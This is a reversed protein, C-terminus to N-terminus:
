VAKSKAWIEDFRAQFAAATEAHNKITIRNESHKTSSSDSFNASGFFVDDGVVGFKEHMTRASQVRVDVDLGAAALAKLATVSGGNYDDNLVVRVRVGRRAAVELARSEPSGPSMGYMAVCLTQGPKARAFLDSAGVVVSAPVRSVQGTADMAAVTRSGAAGYGTNGVTASYPRGNFFVDVDIATLKERVRGLTAPSIGPVSLLDQLSEYDGRAEREAVIAQAQKPTFGAADLEDVSAANISVLGSGFFLAPGAQQLLAAAAPVREALEDLSAFRGYRKREALVAKAVQAGLVTALRSADTAAYSNVDISWGDSPVQYKPLSDDKRNTRMKPPQSNAVLMQNWLTGKFNAFNNPSLAADDNNWYGSFEDGFQAIARRSSADTNRFTVLDEYNKTDATGSWNFSGTVLADPRGDIFTCFGKHHNLGRTSNHNYSPRGLKTSFVYPFDKKFKVQVNPLRLKLMPPLANGGSATAQGSDAIIRLTVNPNNRAIAVLAKEIVDSQFEFITTNIDLHRGNARAVAANLEAVLQAEVSAAQLTFHTTIGDLNANAALAKLDERARVVAADVQAQTLPAQGPAVQEFASLVVQAEAGALVRNADAGAAQALVEKVQAEAPTGAVRLLLQDVLPRSLSSLRVQAFTTM